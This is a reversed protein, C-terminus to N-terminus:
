LNQNVSRQRVGKEREKESEGIQVERELADVKMERKSNYEERERKNISVRGGERERVGEEAM